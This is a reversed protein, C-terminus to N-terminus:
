ASKDGIRHYGGGFFLLPEAKPDGQLDNVRGVVLYHDGIEHVAETTCDLWAISGELLPHGLASLGHVIDGYKDPGGRAFQRCEALQHAGLVNVAFQGIDKMAAWTRSTKAPFFGVLPPDLSISNFTGVVMAHRRDDRGTATIVAVGTPYASLVTRFHHPDIM